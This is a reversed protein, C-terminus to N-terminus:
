IQSIRNVIGKLIKKIEGTTLRVDRDCLAIIDSLDFISNSSSSSSSSFSAEMELENMNSNIVPLNDM